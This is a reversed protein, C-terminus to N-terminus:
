IITLNNNFISQKRRETKLVVENVSICNFVWNKYRTKGSFIYTKKKSETAARLTEVYFLIIKKSM